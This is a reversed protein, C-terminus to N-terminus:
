PKPPTLQEATERSIRGLRPRTFLNEALLVISAGAVFGTLGILDRLVILVCLTVWAAGHIAITGRYEPHEKMAKRVENVRQGAKGVAVAASAYAYFYWMLWAMLPM